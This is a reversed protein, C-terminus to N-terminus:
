KKKKVFKKKMEDHSITKKNKVETLREMIVKDSIVEITEKLEAITQLHEDEIRKLRENMQLILSHIEATEQTQHTMGGTPTVVDFVIEEDLVSSNIKVKGNKDQEIFVKGQRLPEVWGTTKHLRKTFKAYEKEYQKDDLSKEYNKPLPEEELVDEYLEIKKNM